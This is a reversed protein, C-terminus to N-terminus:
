SLEPDILCVLNCVPVPAFLEVATPIRLVALVEPEPVFCVLHSHASCHNMFVHLRQRVDCDPLDFVFLFFFSALFYFPEFFLKCGQKFPISSRVVLNYSLLNAMSGM